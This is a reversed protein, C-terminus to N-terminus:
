ASPRTRVQPLSPLPPWKVSVQRRSVRGPETINYRHCGTILLTQRQGRITTDKSPSIICIGNECRAQAVDRGDRRASLEELFFVGESM